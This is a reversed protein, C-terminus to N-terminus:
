ATLLREIQLSYCNSAKRFAVTTKIGEVPIQPITAEMQFGDHDMIRLNWCVLIDAMIWKSGM